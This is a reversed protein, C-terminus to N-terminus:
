APVSEAGAAVRDVLQLFKPMIVNWEYKERVLQRANEVLRKRLVPDKLLRVTAQAFAPANDALLYHEEPVTALEHQILETMEPMYCAFLVRPRHSFFGLLARLSNAQYARAPVMRVAQCLKRLPTIPASEPQEGCSLRTLTHQKALGCLLNFIRLRVGNNPPYPFRNSLFLINM